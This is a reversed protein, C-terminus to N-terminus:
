PRLHRHAENHLFVYNTEITSDTIKDIMQLGGTGVAYCDYSLNRFFSLVDNPHYGFPASWKRLLETFVIPKIKSLCNEAGKFVLFEAGEVDCKIFDPHVQYNECWDDLKLTLGRITRVNEDQALNRLSANTCRTPALFFDVAGTNESLGYNYSRVRHGLGNAAINRSLFAFNKPIPEFAHVSAEPERIAFRISHWGINAGIDLIQLAGCMLRDMVRSEHPEYLGFNLTEIPAVRPEDAPAYVVFGDNGASFCVGDESIKITKIDTEKTLQVYEFLKQHSEMCTEIFEQKQIKGQAFLKRLATLNKEQNM